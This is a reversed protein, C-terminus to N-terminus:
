FFFIKRQRVLDMLVDYINTHESLNDTDLHETDKMVQLLMETGKGDYLINEKTLNKELM